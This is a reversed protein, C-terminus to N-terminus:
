ELVLVLDFMLCEFHDAIAEVFHVLLNRLLLALIGIKM